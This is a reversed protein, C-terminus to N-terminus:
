PTTTPVLQRLHWALLHVQRRSTRQTLAMARVLVGVVLILATIYLAHAIEVNPLLLRGGASRLVLAGDLIEASRPWWGLLEGVWPFMVGAALAPALVYTRGFRLHMSFALMTATALGPAVLFPTFLRAILFLMGVNAAVILPYFAQPLRAGGLWRM